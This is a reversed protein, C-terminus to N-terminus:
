QYGPGISGTNTELRQSMRNLAEALERGYKESEKLLKEMM